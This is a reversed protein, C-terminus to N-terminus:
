SRGRDLLTRRKVDALDHGAQSMGCTPCVGDVWAHDHCGLIPHSFLTYGATVKHRAWDEASWDWSGVVFGYGRGDELGRFYADPTHRRKLMLALTSGRRWKGEFYFVDSPDRDGPMTFHAYFADM